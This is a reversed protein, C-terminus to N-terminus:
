SFWDMLVFSQIFAGALCNRNFLSNPPSLGEDWAPRRWCLSLSERLLLRVWPFPLGSSCKETTVEGEAGKRNSSSPPPATAVGAMVTLKLETTAWDGKHQSELLRACRAPVAQACRPQLQEDPGLCARFIDAFIFDGDWFLIAGPGTRSNFSVLIQLDAEFGSICDGLAFGPAVM